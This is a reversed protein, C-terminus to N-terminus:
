PSLVVTFQQLLGGVYVDVDLCGGAHQVEILAPQIAVGMFAIGCLQALGVLGFARHLQRGQVRLAGFHGRATACCKRRLM